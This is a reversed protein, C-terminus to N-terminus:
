NWRLMRWVNRKGIMMLLGDGEELGEVMVEDDLELFRL